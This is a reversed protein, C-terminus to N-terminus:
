SKLGNKTKMILACQTRKLDHGSMKPFFSAMEHKLVWKSTVKAWKTLIDHLDQTCIETVFSAHSFIM